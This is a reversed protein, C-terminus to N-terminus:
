VATVTYGQREALARCDAEQAEPSVRDAQKETSVRVYIAARKVALAAKAAKRTSKTNAM